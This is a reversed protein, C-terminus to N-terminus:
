LLHQERSTTDGHVGLGVVELMNLHIFIVLFKNLKVGCMFQLDQGHQHKFM